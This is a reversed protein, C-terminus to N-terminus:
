PPTPGIYMGSPPRVPSGKWSSNMWHPAGQCATRLSPTTPRRAGGESGLVLKQVQTILESVTRATHGAQTMGDLGPIVCEGRRKRDLYFDLPHRFSRTPVTHGLRRNRFLALLFQYQDKSLLKGAWASDRAGEPGGHNAQLMSEFQSLFRGGVRCVQKLFQEPQERRQWASLAPLCYFRRPQEDLVCGFPISIKGADGTAEWRFVDMEISDGNPTLDIRQRGESRWANGM